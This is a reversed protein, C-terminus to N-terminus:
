CTCIGEDRGKYAKKPMYQLFWLRGKFSIMGEDVSLERGITFTAKFNAILPDVFPQLEYLPDYGLEKKPIHKTSNNLHLFCLLLQSDIV